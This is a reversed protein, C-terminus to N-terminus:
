RGVACPINKSSSNPFLSQFQSFISHFTCTITVSCVQKQHHSDYPIYRRTTESSYVSKQSTRVAEM